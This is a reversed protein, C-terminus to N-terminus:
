MRELKKIEKKLMGSLRHRAMYVRGASIGLTRAVAAVPWQKLAYLDFIQWQRADVRAKVRALAADMLTSHWEREWLAEFEGKPDAIREITGTRASDDEAGDRGRGAPPATPARRKAIQNKVRWNALNLLWTKFSCVKPNYSYEPLHRAASILTEQVVEQAEDETLGAKLCFGRILKAYIDHFEQWSAQDQTDKLRGLLTPRTPYPDDKADAMITIM